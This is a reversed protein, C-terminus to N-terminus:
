NIFYKQLIKKWISFVKKQYGLNYIGELSPNHNIEIITFSKPNNISDSVFVDIGCVRLQLDKMLQQVWKMTEYSVEEKYNQITGGASINAKSMIQFEVGKELITQLNYNYKILQQSFFLSDSTIHNRERKIQINVKKILQAISHQGDGYIKPMMRQYCFEVKGDIVFLRYESQSIVEQVLAIWSIESIQKLHKELEIRNHILEALIGLSSSNPKVFVPYGMKKAFLFADVLEQQDGRLAKYEKRIFFYQGKPINYGKDQLIKYCWAKDHVLQAAFKANLPYIGIQNNSAFFSKKNDSVEVLNNSYTDVLKWKYGFEYCAKKLILLLLPIDPKM